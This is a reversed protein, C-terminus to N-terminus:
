GHDPKGHGHGRGGRDDDTKVHKARKGGLVGCAIVTGDQLHVDVYFDGDAAPFTESRGKASANGSPRAKLARYTWGPYPPADGAACSDGEHVHWLYTEGPELGKMHLSVKDRRRGDVLQARGRADGADTAALKAKSVKAHKEHASAPAAILLAGACLILTWRM